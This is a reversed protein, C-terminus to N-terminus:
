LRAEAAPTCAQAQQERARVVLRYCLHRLQGLEADDIDGLLSDISEAHIAMAEDCRTRGAETLRAIVARRDTPDATRELLGQAELGDVIATIARPTLHLHEALARLQPGDGDWRRVIWLTRVQQLTLGLPALRHELASNLLKNVINLAAFAEARPQHVPQGACLDRVVPDFLHGEGDAELRTALTSRNFSLQM